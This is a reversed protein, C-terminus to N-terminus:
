GFKTVLITMTQYIIIILLSTLEISTFEDYSSSSIHSPDQHVISESTVIINPNIKGYGVKSRFSKKYKDKSISFFVEVLSKNM